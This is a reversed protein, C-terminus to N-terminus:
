RQSAGWVWAVLGIGLLLMSTPEPVTATATTLTATLSELTNMYTGSYTEKSGFVLKAYFPDTSLISRVDSFAITQSYTNGTVTYALPSNVSGPSTTIVPTLASNTASFFQVTETFGSPDNVGILDLDVFAFTLIASALPFAAIPSFRLYMTLANSNTFPGSMSDSFTGAEGKPGAGDIDIGYTGNNTLNLPIYFAIVGTATDYCAGSGCTPVAQINSGISEVPKGLATSLAHAETAIVVMLGSLLISKLSVKM